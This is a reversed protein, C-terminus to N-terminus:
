ESKPADGLEAKNGDKKYSRGFYLAVCMGHWYLANTIDVGKFMQAFSNLLALQVYVSSLFVLTLSVSSAGTKPDRVMPMPLGMSNMKSIWARVEKFDM